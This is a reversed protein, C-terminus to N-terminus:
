GQVVQRRRSAKALSLESPPDVVHWVVDPFAFVDVTFSGKDPFRTATHPVGHDPKGAAIVEPLTLMKAFPPSRVWVHRVGGEGIPQRDVWAMLSAFDTFDFLPSSESNNSM